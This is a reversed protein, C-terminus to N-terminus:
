VNIKKGDSSTRYRTTTKFTHGDHTHESEVLTADHDRSVTTQAFHVPADAPGAHKPSWKQPGEPAPFVENRFARSKVNPIKAFLTANERILALLLHETEIVTSGTNSAEYRGFFIVRRARETFIEFMHRSNLWVELAIPINPQPTGTQGNFM